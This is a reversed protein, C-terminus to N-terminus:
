LDSTQACTKCLEFSRNAILPRSKTYKESEWVKKFGDKIANGFSYKGDLDYCCMSVTGDAFIISRKAFPCKGFQKVRMEGITPEEKSYRIKGFKPFYKEKLAQSEKEDYLWTPIAISKFVVKDVGLQKGLVKFEEVEHQNIKSVIMQLEVFPKVSYQRKKEGTLMKINEITKEFKGNIRMKEYTEKTAGDLSIIMHDMKASVIEKIWEPKFLTANTSTAVHMNNKSAFAVMKSFHPNLFPEGGLYLWLYHNFNKLENVLKEYEAMTICKKQRKMVWPPTSCFECRLNCMNVPEITVNYPAGTTFHKFLSSILHTIKGFEGTQVNLAMERSTRDAVRFAHGFNM